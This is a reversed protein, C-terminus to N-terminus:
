EDGQYYKKFIRKSIMVFIKELIISFIIVVVTWAFLDLTEIYIKADYMSKGITKNPRALIEAAIGSKWAFGIGVKCSSIFYPIVSPLYIHLLRIRNNLRFSDAMEILKNDVQNLGELINTWILPFVMLFSTFVSLSPVKIFVLALLIFSAVPTAKFISVLGGLIEKFIPWKYSIVALISGIIVSLIFGAIIHYLSNIINYWFDGSASLQAIRKLVQVPSAVLIDKGVFIYVLQWILIWFMFVLLSKTHKKM